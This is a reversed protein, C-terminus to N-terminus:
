GQTGPLTAQKAPQDVFKPPSKPNAKNSSPSTVPASSQPKKAAPASSSVPDKSTSSTPSGVTSKGVFIAGPEVSLVKAKIDGVVEATSKLDVRDAATINGHVKGYVVVTSTKIEAKIKANEGVTLNGNSAIEGEIRGDIVLDNTFKVTGKIDVDSSLINRTGSSSRAPASPTPSSSAAPASASPAAPSSPEPTHAAVPEPSENPDQGKYRKFVSM